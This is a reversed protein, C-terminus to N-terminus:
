LSKANKARAMIDKGTLAIPIAKEQIPSPKVYGKEFIGRLLDRKLHLDDFENGETASCERNEKTKLETPSISMAEYIKRVPNITVSKM